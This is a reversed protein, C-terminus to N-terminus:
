SATEQVTKAIRVASLKHGPHFRWQRLREASGPNGRKRKRPHVIAAVQEFASLPFTINRGDDGDQAVETGPIEAVRTGTWSRVRECFALLDPGWPCIHGGARCPIMQLWPEEQRAWPKGREQQWAADYAIKFRAGYLHRLNPCSPREPNTAVATM